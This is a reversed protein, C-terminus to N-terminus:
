FGKTLVYHLDHSSIKTMDGGQLILLPFEKGQYHGMGFAISLYMQLKLAKMDLISDARGVARALFLCVCSCLLSIRKLGLSVQELFELPIM